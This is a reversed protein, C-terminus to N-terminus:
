FLLYELPVPVKSARGHHTLLVLIPTPSLTENVLTEKFLAPWSVRLLQSAKLSQAKTEKNFGPSLLLGLGQRKSHNQSRIFTVWVQECTWGFTYLPKYTKAQNFHM